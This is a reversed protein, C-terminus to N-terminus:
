NKYTTNCYPHALQANEVDGKGDDEKRKIHDFTISNVHIYGHCLKCKPANKLTETIFATSKTEVSFDKGETVVPNISKKLYSYKKDILIADIIQDTTKNNTLLRSILELYFEKIYLYGNIASRYKRGIQQILYDYDILIREFNERIKLFNGIKTKDNLEMMLATIAYFSATKYRGNQSYFYVAPHLGLSISNSSNIKQAIISCKDLYTITTVSANELEQAIQEPTKIKQEELIEGIRKANTQTEDIGNVINVFGLILPLTQSAYLEGGIPLDLTKIPQHLPPRFLVRSINKATDEIKRQKSEEFKSWYKHGAGSRIIARSAICNPANREELLKLETTNIPTASQNIKFFSQEASYSNGSVWQLQVALSGLAKAKTAYKPLKDPNASAFQYDKFQGVSNKIITRTKDAIRIQEESIDLGYFTKSIEGDGYDDNIWAALASLRHSGDIVFIYKSNSQWLIIAPILDGNIFSRVLEVIRNINWENTERQFDPKRISEFFFDGKQLDRVSITTRVTNPKTAELVEFDERPILADLNVNVMHKNHQKPKLNSTGKNSNSLYISM